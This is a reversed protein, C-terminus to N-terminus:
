LDRQWDKLERTLATSNKSFDSSLGMLATADAKKGQLALDLIDGAALHFDAHLKCIKQYEATSKLNPDIKEHLWKGFGCNNDARVKEPTSESKGSAIAENLKDRWAAHAAIAKNIEDVTSM